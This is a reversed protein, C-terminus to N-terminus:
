GVTMLCPNRKKAEAVECLLLNWTNIVRGHLASRGKKTRLHSGPSFLAKNRIVLKMAECQSKGVGSRAPESGALISDREPGM